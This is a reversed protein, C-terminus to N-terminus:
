HNLSSPYAGTTRTAPSEPTKILPRHEEIVAPPLHRIEGEM